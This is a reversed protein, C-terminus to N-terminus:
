VKNLPVTYTRKNTVKSLERQLYRKVLRGIVAGDMQVTANLTSEVTFSKPETITVNVVSSTQRYTSLTDGAGLGGGTRLSSKGINNFFNKLSEWFGTAQPAETKGSGFRAGADMWPNETKTIPAIYNYQEALVGLRKLSGKLLYDMEQLADRQRSYPTEGGKSVGVDSWTTMVATGKILNDGANSLKDAAQSTLDLIGPLADLIPDFFEVGLIDKNAPTTAEQTGPLGPLNKNGNNFLSTLPVWFTAGEPINWQGELQKKETDLIDQLVFQIAEATSTIKQFKNDKLIFNFEQFDEPKAKQYQEATDYGRAQALYKTWYNNLEQFQGWKSIDLDPQRQINFTDELKKKLEEQKQLM